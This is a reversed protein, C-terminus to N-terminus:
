LGADLEADPGFNTENYYRRWKDVLENETHSMDNPGANLLGPRRKRRFGPWRDRHETRLFAVDHEDPHTVVLKGGPKLTRVMEAIAQPPDEAHHLFM